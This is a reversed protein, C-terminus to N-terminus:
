SSAVREHLAEVVSRASVMAGHQWANAHSLYDGAFYVRGAPELLREYAGERSSWMVWAGESHRIDTWHVSFASAVDRAASEGHIDTLRDLARSLRQPHRLEGYDAAYPGENYYGLLTGRPGHFGYSPYWVNLLDTNTSTIGGYIRHDLEWWRRSYEVGLKGVDLVEPTRLADRVETPLNGSLRAAIGPPLTCIAFDAALTRMRGDRGTHDVEVGDTTNRVARIETGYHVHQNGVADALAHAIRDMGGVPQYMMMAQEWRLELSFYYGIRSALVDSLPHPPLPTGEQTGAGPPIEYGRRGTGTYRFSAAPDGDVKPGLDGFLRLFALLAERDEGTLYADLAGQDTAKSLLESVYGYVDARAARHRVPVGSLDHDGVQYLYGDANTGAFVEIPVGLERCYDLTVHHQPIRAAGANLYEGRSFGATQREGKLDTETDGGRVTWNRGGPRRRAELVTVDYGGKRLEYAATLGAMGAGLIVVSRPPRGGLDGPRPPVFTPTDAAVPALGLAGMAGYLAGAGGTVGVARLFQRRTQRMM